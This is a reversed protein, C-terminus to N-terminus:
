ADAAVIEALRGALPGRVQRKVARFAPQASIEGARMLARDVIEGPPCIEDFIRAEVLPAAPYRASTLTLNRLWNPPLDAHI